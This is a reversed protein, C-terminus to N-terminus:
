QNTKENPADVRLMEGVMQVRCAEAGDVASIVEGDFCDEHVGPIRSEAEEVVRVGDECGLPLSGGEDGSVGLSTGSRLELAYLDLPTGSSGSGGIGDRSESRALREGDVM